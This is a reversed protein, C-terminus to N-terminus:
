PEPVDRRPSPKPIAHMGGEALAPGTTIPRDARPGDLQANAVKAPASQAAGTAPRVHPSKWARQFLGRRVRAPEAMLSQPAEWFGDHSAWVHNSETRMLCVV